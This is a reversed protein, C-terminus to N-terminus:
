FFQEFVTDSLLLGEETLGIRGDSVRLLGSGILQQIESAYLSGFDCGLQANMFQTDVGECQRLALMIREGRRSRLSPEPECIAPYAGSELAQRYAGWESSCAWRRGGIYSHASVGLGLYECGTWYKRNHRSEHGPLAYNSIEYHLYGAAILERRAMLFMERQAEEDPLPLAGKECREFFPTGPHITMGYVSLHPPRYRIAEQLDSEWQSLSSEPGGFILDIGWSKLPLEPLVELLDHVSRANHRRGLRGLMADDFSQVGISFRDVGVECFAGLRGHAFSGPNVELTTEAPLQMGFTSRIRRILHGISEPSLLSPTGGGFYITDLRREALRDHVSCALQLEAVLGDVVCEPTLNAFHGIPWSAFDCYPCIGDCLPVHCYLGFPSGEPPAGPTTM